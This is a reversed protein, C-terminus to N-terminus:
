CYKNIITILYDADKGMQDNIIDVPFHKNILKLAKVLEQNATKLNQLEIIEKM